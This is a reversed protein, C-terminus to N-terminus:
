IFSVNFINENITPQEAKNMFADRFAIAQDLTDFYKQCRNGKKQYLFRWRVLGSPHVYRHVFREKTYSNEPRNIRM